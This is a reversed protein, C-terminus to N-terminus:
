AMGLKAKLDRLLPDGNLATNDTTRVGQGLDPFGQPKPEPPKPAIGDIFTRISKADVTGDDALFVSRNVGQLLVGLQKDDLRGAAAVRLEADVLRSGVEMLAEHRGADRAEAVAREQDSMAQRQLQELKKQADANAKARDEHKRALERWKDAESKWDKDDPTDDPTPDPTPQAPPTPEPAPTDPTPADSPAADSM